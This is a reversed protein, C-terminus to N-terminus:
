MIHAITDSKRVLPHNNIASRSNTQLKFNCIGRTVEFRLCIFCLGQAKALPMHAQTVILQFIRFLHLRWALFSVCLFIIIQGQANSASLLFSIPQQINNKAHLRYLM